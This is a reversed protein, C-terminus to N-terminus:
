TMLERPSFSNFFRMKNMKLTLEGTKYKGFFSMDKYLICEFMYVNMDEHIFTRYNIIGSIGQLVCSSVLYLM